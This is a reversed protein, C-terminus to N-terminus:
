KSVGEQVVSTKQRELNQILASMLGRSEPWADHEKRYMSLAKDAAGAQLYLTGLEAYLGPAVKQNNQELRAILETLGVTLEEARAPSKYTAYLLGEYEGWQYQPTTTACGSLLAAALLWAFIPKM